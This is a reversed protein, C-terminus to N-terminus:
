QPGRRNLHSSWPTNVVAKERGKVLGPARKASTGHNSKRKLANHSYYCLIKKKDFRKVMRICRIPTGLNIVQEADDFHFGYRQYFGLARKNEALVWLTVQPCAALKKMGYDMLLHGLGCGKFRELIYLAQIEGTGEPVDKDRCPCWCVFGVIEGNLVAVATNEPWHHAMARCKEESMANLYADDVIGRYSEQWSQYHVTGKGDCDEPQM